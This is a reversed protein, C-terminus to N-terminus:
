PTQCLALFREFDALIIELSDHLRHDDDVMRLSLRQRRAHEIVPECAVVDDRWGHIIHTHRARITVTTEPYDPMGLAPALLFCGRVPHRQSLAASLFGGLSSGAMVCRDPDDGRAKLTAVLHEFRAQHSPQDRYDMVVAECDDCKEVVGKLAQVKLAQPGSELGHSLYVHTLM